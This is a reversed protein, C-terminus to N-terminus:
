ATPAGSRPRTQPVPVGGPGRGFERWSGGVRREHPVFALKYRMVPSKEIALGLYLWRMGWARALELERLIMFTGPSLAERRVDWFTYVASLAAAGRDAVAVAVLEGTAADRASLEVVEAFSDLLFERYRVEDIPEGGRMLGREQQHARFLAVHAADLTPPGVEVALATGTKRLIRRHTAGPRFREVDLRLPECARCTPCEQNYLFIGSRRDGAELRADLEEGRLRRSPVRLPRRATQDPLYPCPEEADLAVVEPPVVSLVRRTVRM